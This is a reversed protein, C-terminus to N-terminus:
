KDTIILPEGAKPQFNEQAWKEIFKATSIYRDSTGKSYGLEQKYEDFTLAEALHLRLERTQYFVVAELLKGCEQLAEANQLMRKMGKWIEALRDDPLQIASSQTNSNESM